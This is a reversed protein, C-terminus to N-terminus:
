ESVVKTKSMYDHLLQDNCFIFTILDLPIFRCITRLLVSVFRNKDTVVKLTMIKKGITKHFFTESILFYLFFPAFQIIASTLLFKTATDKIFSNWFCLIFIYSPISIILIDILYAYFRKLIIQSM